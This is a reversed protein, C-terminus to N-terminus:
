WVIISISHVSGFGNWVEQGKGDSLKMGNPGVEELSSLEWLVRQQALSAQVTRTDFAFLEIALLCATVLNFRLCVVNLVCCGGDKGLIALALASSELLSPSIRIWQQLPNYIDM